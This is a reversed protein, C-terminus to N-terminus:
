LEGSRLIEANRQAREPTQDESAYLSDLLEAAAEHWREARLANIMKVFRLMGNLGLQFSMDVLVVRRNEDLKNFWEHEVLKNVLKNIIHRLWFDIVEDSIFRYDIEAARRLKLIRQENDARWFDLVIDPIRFDDLNFGVGITRKGATCLYVSHRRGEEAEIKAEVKEIFTM